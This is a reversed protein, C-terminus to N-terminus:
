TPCCPPEAFRVVGGDATIAPEVEDAPQEAADLQGVKGIRDAFVTAFDLDDGMPVAALGASSIAGTLSPHSAVRVQHGAAQFAWGLPVLGYFHSRWGWSCMLIRM